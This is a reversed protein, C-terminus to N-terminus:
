SKGAFGDMCLCKCHTCRHTCTPSSAPHVKDRLAIVSMLMPELYSSHIGQMFPRLLWGMRSQESLWGGLDLKLVMTVLCEQSVGAAQYKSSLPAITFGASAMQVGCLLDIPLWKTLLLVPGCLPKAALASTYQSLLTSCLMAQDSPRGPPNELKAFFWKTNVRSSELHKKWKNIPSTCTCGYCGWTDFHFAVSLCCLSCCVVTFAM